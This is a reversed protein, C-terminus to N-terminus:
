HATANKVAGGMRSVAGWSTERKTKSAQESAQMRTQRKERTNSIDQENVQM